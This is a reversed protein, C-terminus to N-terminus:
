NNLKGLILNVVTGVEEVDVTGDGNLDGFVRMIYKYEASKTALENGAADTATFTLTGSELMNVGKEPNYAKPEADNIKFTLTAGEPLAPEVTAKVNVLETYDGPEKDLTITYTTAPLAPVTVTQTAVESIDKGEEQATATFVFTQEESTRAVTCPNEVEEGDKYLKVTGAGNATVTYAEEGETVVIEPTATKEIVEGEIYIYVPLQKNEEYCSFLGDGSPNFRMHNHTINAKFVVSFTGDELTIAAKGRDDLDQQVRLYNNSNAGAAYLYGNNDVDFFTYNDGDKGLVMSKYGATNTMDLSALPAVEDNGLAYQVAARNNNNQGGMVYMNVDGEVFGAILVQKGAELESLDTVLKFKTAPVFLDVTYTFEGSFERGYGDSAEINVTTNEAVNVTFAESAEQTQGNNVTYIITLDGFGNKPTFTVDTAKYLTTCSAVSPEITFDPLNITYTKKARAETTVNEVEYYAYAKVTCSSTLTFPAEYTIATNSEYPDTGDLTYLILVDGVGNVTEITVTVPATYDGGDPTISVEFDESVNETFKTPYFQITENFIGVFGEIDFTKDEVSSPFADGLSFNDRGQLTNEGDTITFNKSVPATISVGRLVAFENQLDGTMIETITRETPTVTVPDDDAYALDNINIVEHLGNYLTTIGKFGTIKKGVLSGSNTFSDDFLLASSTNDKIYCYKGNNYTVIAEGNFKFDTNAETPFAGVTQVTPKFEISKSAVESVDEGLKAQAYVTTNETLTFGGDPYDSYNEDDTSYQIAAGDTACSITCTVNDGQYPAAPDFTIVPTEVAPPTVKEWTILIKSLYAPDSKSRIGIFQYDGSVYLSTNTGYTITGLLTGQKSEDYLDTPSEYATNKGYINIVRGNATNSDFTIDIIKVKGGSTTTVIGSNSNKSRLQISSNGGASQGAYVAHSLESKWTWETYSTGTVGTVDRTLEDTVTEAWASTCLLM